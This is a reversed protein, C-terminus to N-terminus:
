LKRTTEQGAKHFKRKYVHLKSSLSSESASKHLNRSSKTLFRCQLMQSDWSGWARVQRRKALRVLETQTVGMRSTAKLCFALADHPEEWKNGKERPDWDQTAQKGTYSLLQKMYEAWDELKKHCSTSCLGATIGHARFVPTQLQSKLVPTLAKGSCGRKERLDLWKTESQIVAATDKFEQIQGFM